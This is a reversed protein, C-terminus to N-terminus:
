MGGGGGGGGNMQMAAQMGAAVLSQVLASPVYADLKITSADTSITEGIPPLDPPLQVPMAFGFQKAYTLGTTVIQDLPIYVEGARNTPLNGAVKKVGDLAALPADGSKASAIATSLAADPLGSSLLFKDGVVATLQTMGAPGYMLTMMQQQQQAIPSAPDAKMVTTMSNFSVGDVTKANPTVTVQYSDAPLGLSKMVDPMLTMAKEYNTSLAAADGIYVVVAQLLAEQGLAGTPAILGMAGGKQAAVTAKMATAYDTIAQMDPGTATVEKVIPDTFDAVVKSAMAPDVAWGGFVLYKGSPLGGLLPDTTNKVSAILGGSYSGPTFDLMATTSLGEDGITIGYTAADCDRLFGDAVNLLQNVFAHVIPALKESNPNKKIAEDAQSLIQDRNEALKPQLIGRIATFNAYVAIDKSNLEKDGAATLKLGTAPKQSVMDKNPSIAAYSGWNAVFGPQPSDAMKVQTVDGDTQADPFNALFAKYDSVPFLIIMAKDPTADPGPGPNLFAVFMDGATNLGQSIKMKDELSKLPDSLQPVVNALGLDTAFKALKTSTAQLNKFKLVVLANDPVSDLVQAAAPRAALMVLLAVAVSAAKCCRTIRVCTQNM